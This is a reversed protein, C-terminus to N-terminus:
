ESLKRALAQLLQWAIPGNAEVIPRFDWSTLAWCTLDEDAKVTATRPSASLLAIEGFYDGAKLSRRTEGGITVTASGAEIVFFGIATDGETVVARGAPYTYQKMSRAIKELDRHRLDRFIEVHSLLDVPSAGM